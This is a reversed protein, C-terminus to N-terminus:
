KTKEKVTISFDKLIDGTEASSLALEYTINPDPQSSVWESSQSVIDGNIFLGPDDNSAYNVLVAINNSHIDLTGGNIEIRHAMLANDFGNITVLANGNMTLSGLTGIDLSLGYLSSGSIELIGNDSVTVKSDLHGYCDIGTVTDCDVSLRSSGSVSIQPTCKLCCELEYTIELKPYKDYRGSVEMISNGKLAIRDLYSCHMTRVCANGSLNLSDGSISPTELYGNDKVSIDTFKISENLKTINEYDVKSVIRANECITIRKTDYLHHSEKPIISEASLTGDGKITLDTGIFKLKSIDSDGSLIIELKDIGSIYVDGDIDLGDLILKGGKYTIGDVTEGNLIDKGDATISMGDPFWKVSYPFETVQVGRWSSTGSFDEMVIEYNKDEHGYEDIINQINVTNLLQYRSDSGSDIEETIYYWSNEGSDFFCWSVYGSKSVKAMEPVGDGDLDIFIRGIYWDEELDGAQRLMIDIATAGRYSASVYDYLWSMEASYMASLPASIKKYKDDGFILGCSEISDPLSIDEIDTHAFAMKGITKLGDNLTISKLPTSMFACDGIDTLSSPITISTLSSNLFANKEICELGQSLTVKTLKSQFFADEGIVETGDPVVIEGTKGPPCYILTRGDASYLIGDISMFRDGKEANINKLNPCTSFSRSAFKEAASSINITELSEANSIETISTITPPFTIETVDTDTLIGKSYGVVPCREINDPIVVTTDLGKYKKLEIEGNRIVYEFNYAPTAKLPVAEFSESTGSTESAAASTDSTQGPDDTKNKNCSTLIVTMSLIIFMLAMSFNKRLMNNVKRQTM